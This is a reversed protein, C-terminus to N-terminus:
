RALRGRQSELEAIQTQLEAIRSPDTAIASRDRLSRILSALGADTVQFAANAAASSQRARNVAFIVALIGAALLLLNVGMPITTRSWWTSASDAAHDTDLESSYEVRERYPRPSSREPAIDIGTVQPEEFYRGAFDVKNGWGGVRIEPAKNGEVVKQLSQKQAAVSKSTEQASRSRQNTSPLLTGCGALLLCALLAAASKM